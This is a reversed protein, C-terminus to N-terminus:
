LKKLAATTRPGVIGDVKLGRAAQFARVAALTKTGFIGDIPGPDFGHRALAGQIEYVGFANAPPPGNKVYDHLEAESGAFWNFDSDIGQPLRKGGDGDFQWFRWMQWPHEIRPSKVGYNAIWLDRSALQYFKHRGVADLQGDHTVGALFSPYSYVICPRKWLAETAQVFRNVRHLMEGIPVGKRTEWDIVPPLENVSGAVKFYHEAQAEADRSPWFYHYSGVYIGAKKMESVNRAFSPDVYAQAETSKAFCYKVGSAAISPWDLAKGQAISVDIGLVRETVERKPETLIANWADFEAVLRRRLSLL